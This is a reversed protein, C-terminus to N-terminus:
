NYRLIDAVTLFYTKSDKTSKRRIISQKASNYYFKWCVIKRRIFGGSTCIYINGSSTCIYIHTHIYIRSRFFLLSCRVENINKWKNTIKPILPLLLVRLWSYGFVRNNAYMFLPLLQLHVRKEMVCRFCRIWPSHKRTM